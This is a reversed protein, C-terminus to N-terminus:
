TVSSGIRMSADCGDLVLLAGISVPHIEFQSVGLNGRSAIKQWDMWSKFRATAHDDGEHRAEDSNLKVYRVLTRTWVNGNAPPSSINGVVINHDKTFGIGKSHKSPSM